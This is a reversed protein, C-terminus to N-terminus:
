FYANPISAVITTGAGMRSDIVLQGGISEVRERM